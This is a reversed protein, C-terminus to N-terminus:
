SPQLNQWDALLLGKKLVLHLHHLLNSAPNFNLLHVEVFVILNLIPCTGDFVLSISRRNSELLKGNIVHRHRVLLPFSNLIKFLTVSDALELVAFQCKLFISSQGM